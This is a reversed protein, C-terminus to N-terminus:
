SAADIVRRIVHVTQTVDSRAGARPIDHGLAHVYVWRVGAACITNTVAIASAARDQSGWIHATPIRVVDKYAGLDITRIEGSQIAGYDLPPHTISLIIAFKFPLPSNPKQKALYALYTLILTGAQSFAIVGDYPGEHYLLEELHRYAAVGSEPNKEHFYAYMPEDKTAILEIGPQMSASINGEIFDYTHNDGLEYRIAATQIEFVRSNSGAGHLCLIHM